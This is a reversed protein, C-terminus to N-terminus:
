KFNQLFAMVKYKKHEEELNQRYDKYPNWEYGTIENLTLLLKYNFLPPKRQLITMLSKIADVPFKYLLLDNDKFKIMGYKRYTHCLINRAGGERSQDDGWNLGSLPTNGRRKSALVERCGLNKYFCFRLSM